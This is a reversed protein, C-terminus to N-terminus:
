QRNREQDIHDAIARLTKALKGLPENTFVAYEGQGDVAVQSVHEGIIEATKLSFKPDIPPQTKTM